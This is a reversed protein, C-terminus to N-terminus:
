AFDLLGNKTFPDAYTLRPTAREGHVSTIPLSSIPHAAHVNGYWEGIIGPTHQNPDIRARASLITLGHDLIKSPVKNIEVEIGLYEV